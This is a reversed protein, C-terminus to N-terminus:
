IDDSRITRVDLPRGSHKDTPSSTLKQDLGDLFCDILDKEYQGCRPLIRKLKEELPSGREYNITSEAVICPNKEVPVSDDLLWNLDLEDGFYNKLNQIFESGPINISKEYNFLSTTSTKGIKAFNEQTERCTKKRFHFIKKGILGM